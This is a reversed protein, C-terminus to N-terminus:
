NQLRKVSADIQAAHDGRMLAATDFRIYVGNKREEITLLKRTCEQELPIIWNNLTYKVVEIGLSEINAWTARNLEYVIHPPIRLMRCVELVSFQRNEAVQATDLEPTNPKATMGALVMWRHAKQTGSFNNKIADSIETKQEKTLPKETEIFGGFLGGDQYFKEVYKETEKNTRIAGQMLKIIGMGKMGDESMAPLHIIEDSGFILFRDKSDGQETDYAFWQKGNFRFPIMRDPPLNYLEIDQGEGESPQM